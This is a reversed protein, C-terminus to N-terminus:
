QKRKFKWWYTFSGIVVLGFYVWGYGFTRYNYWYFPINVIKWLIILELLWFSFRTPNRGLRYAFLLYLVLSVMVSNDYIYNQLRIPENWPYKYIWKGSITSREWFTHLEGLAVIVAVIVAQWVNYKRNDVMVPLRRPHLRLIQGRM